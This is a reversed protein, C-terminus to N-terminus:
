RHMAIVCIFLFSHISVFLVLLAHTSLISPFICVFVIPFVTVFM